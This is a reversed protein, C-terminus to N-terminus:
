KKYNNLCTKLEEETEFFKQEKIISGYITIIERWEKESVDIIFKTEIPIDYRWVKIYGNLNGTGVFIDLEHNDESKYGAIYGYDVPYIVGKLPYDRWVPDNEIEFSKYSGKPNEIVIDIGYKNLVSNIRFSELHEKLLLIRANSKKIM